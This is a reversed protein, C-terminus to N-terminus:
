ILPQNRLSSFSRNVMMERVLQERAVCIHHCAELTDTGDLLMKYAEEISNDGTHRTVIVPKKPPQLQKVSEATQVPVQASAMTGLGAVTMASRSLFDRRTTM